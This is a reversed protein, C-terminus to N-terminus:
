GSVPRVGSCSDDVSTGLVESVDAVVEAGTVGTATLLGTALMSVAAGVTM